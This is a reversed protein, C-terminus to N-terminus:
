RLCAQQLQQLPLSGCHRFAVMLRQLLRQARERERKGGSSGSLKALLSYLNASSHGSAELLLTCGLEYTDTTSDDEDPLSLVMDCLKCLSEPSFTYLSPMALAPPMSPLGQTRQQQQQQHQQQQESACWDDLRKAERSAASYTAWSLPHHMFAYVFAIVSVSNPM